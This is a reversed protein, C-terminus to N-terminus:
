KLASQDTLINLGARDFCVLGELTDPSTRSDSVLEAGQFSNLRQPGEIPRLRYLYWKLVPVPRDLRVPEVWM